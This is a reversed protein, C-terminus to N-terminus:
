PPREGTEPRSLPSNKPINPERFAIPAFSARENKVSHDDGRTTSVRVIREVFLVGPVTNRTEVHVGAAISIEASAFRRFYM